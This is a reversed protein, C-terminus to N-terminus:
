RNIAATATFEVKWDIPIGRKMWQNKSWYRHFSVAVNMAKEPPCKEAAYAKVEALTPGISGPRREIGKRGRHTGNKWQNQERSWRKSVYPLWAVVVGGGDRGDRGSWDEYVFKSFDEPIGATMTMAIAQELTPIERFPPETQELTASSDSKVTIPSSVPKSKSVEESKPEPEPESQTATVCPTVNTTVNTTVVAQQTKRTSQRAATAAATRECQARYNDVDEAYISAARAQHWHGDKLKFFLNNDFILGKTRTWETM